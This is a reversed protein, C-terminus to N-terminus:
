DANCFGKWRLHVVTHKQWYGGGYIDRRSLRDHAHHMIMDDGIYVAIHSPTPAGGTQILFVDGVQAPQDILRVFGEEKYRELFYSSGMRGNAEIRPYNNIHIGYERKYYDLLITYCDVVGMVYPRELYPLEFGSPETITPESFEFGVESKHVSMIFWPLGSNECGVLDAQSPKAPLDPHTHWVGIVEGRDAVAAYDAPDLIFQQRPNPSINMCEVAVSKKGVALILGCAENPYADAGAAQMIRALADLKVM